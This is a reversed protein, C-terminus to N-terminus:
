ADDGNKHLFSNVGGSCFWLMCCISDSYSVPKTAYSLFFVKSENFLAYCHRWVKWFIPFFLMFILQPRYQRKKTTKNLLVLLFANRTTENVRFFRWKWGLTLLSLYNFLADFCCNRGSFNDFNLEVKWESKNISHWILCMTLIKKRAMKAQWWLRIAGHLIVWFSRGPERLTLIKSVLHVTPISLVYQWEIHTSLLKTFM